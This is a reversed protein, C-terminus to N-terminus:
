WSIKEIQELRKGADISERFFKYFVKKLWNVWEEDAIEFNLLTDGKLEGQKYRDTVKEEKFRALKDDVIFGRLPQRCHRLEIAEKGLKNNLELVRKINEMSSLDVKTLIKVVVGKEVLEELVDIMKEGEHEMNVWSLNGSFVYLEQRAKRLFYPFYKNVKLANKDFVEAYATKKGEDVYQYLEFPDFDDKNRGAEIQKCLREQFPQSHIRATNKWYVIKLAGRTGERFTRSTICGDEEEIQQVYRDATRWNKGLLKAIEDVTRPKENVYDCLQKRTKQDLVM